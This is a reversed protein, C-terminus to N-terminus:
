VRPPDPPPAPETPAAVPPPQPPQTYTTGAATPPEVAHVNDQKISDTVDTTAKRFERIAKGMGEGIEPLRRPGFIILAIAALIILPM